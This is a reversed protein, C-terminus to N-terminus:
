KGGGHCSGGGCESGGCKENCDDVGDVMVVEVIMVVGTAVVLIVVFLVVVVFLVTVILVAIALVLMAVVVPMTGDSSNAIYMNTYTQFNDDRGHLPSVLIVDHFIKKFSKLNERRHSHLIADEPIDRRKARTLVSMEYSSLTEMM